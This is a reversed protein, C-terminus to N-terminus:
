PSTLFIEELKQEEEFTLRRRKLISIQAQNDEFFIGCENYVDLTGNLEHHLFDSIGIKNICNKVLRELEKIAVEEDTLSPLIEEKEEKEEKEEQKLLYGCLGKVKVTKFSFESRPAQM